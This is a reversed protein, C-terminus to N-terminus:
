VLEDGLYVKGGVLRLVRLVMNKNIVRSINCFLKIICIGSGLKNHVVVAVVLMNGVVRSNSVEIM